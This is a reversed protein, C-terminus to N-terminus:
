TVLIILFSFFMILVEILEKERIVMLRIKITVVKKFKKVLQTKMKIM